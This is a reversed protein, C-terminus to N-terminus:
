FEPDCKLIFIRMKFAYAVHLETSINNLVCALDHPNTDAARCSKCKHLANSPLFNNRKSSTLHSLLYLCKSACGSSRVEIGLVWMTSPLASGQSNEKLRGRLVYVYVCM